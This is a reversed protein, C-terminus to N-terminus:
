WSPSSSGRLGQVITKSGEHEKTEEHDWARQQYGNPSTTSFMLGELMQRTIALGYEGASSGISVAAGARVRSISGTLRAAVSFFWGLSIMWVSQCIRRYRKITAQRPNAYVRRHDDDNSSAPTVVFWVTWRLVRALSKPTTYGQDRERHGNANAPFDSTPRRLPAATNCHDARQRM